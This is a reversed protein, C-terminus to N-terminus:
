IKNDKIKSKSVIIAEWESLDYEAALDNIEKAKDPDYEKPEKLYSAIAMEWKDKDENVLIAKTLMQAINIQESSLAKLKYKKKLKDIIKDKLNEALNSTKGIEVMSFGKFDSENAKSGIPKVNIKSKPSGGGGPRGEGGDQQKGLLPQYFGKDRMAKYAKQNIENTEKDPLIGSELGTIIEDPTLLGLEGMRLLVRERQSTDTLDIEEFEIEPVNKFNMIKCLEKIEPLLFGNLFAHQGEKMREIYVKAKILANAFKEDGAYMISQLGEKIDKEVQTYKEPGLISSIDPILWEGKTTYDAVLVRGITQNRFINQLNTINNPNIGGGNEDVKEGNTILLIVHEITQSLAMDIKKLALKWELDNLLPFGFPVALPEYDQKKYFCFRLRERDLPIFVERFSGGSKILKKVNEPLSNFVQKDEDTLPTKLREIEYRSLAKVYNNNYSIGSILYIQAPNLNVYRIPIQNKKLGFATQMKGYQDLAFNGNFRYLFVNGSRYYERFFQEELKYIDIRNLWETIFEKARDNSTKVHLISSSFEVAGEIANRFVAVNAYARQCLVIAWAISFYGNSTEWPLMGENINRFRDVPIVSPSAGDRYSTQSTSGGSAAQASFHQNGDWEYDITPFQVKTPKTPLPVTVPLTAPIAAKSINKREIWYHSIKNYKRAM